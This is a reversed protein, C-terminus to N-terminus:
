IFTNHRNPTPTAEPMAFFVLFDDAFFDVFFAGLFAARGTALFIGFFDAFFGVTLLAALAGLGGM